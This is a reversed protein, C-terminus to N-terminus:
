IKRIPILTHFPEGCLTDGHKVGAFQVHKPLAIMLYIIGEVGFLDTDM